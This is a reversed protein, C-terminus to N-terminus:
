LCFTQISDRKPSETCHQLPLYKPANFSYRLNPCPLLLPEIIIEPKFSALFNHNPM